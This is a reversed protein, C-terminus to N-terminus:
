GGSKKTKEIQEILERARKAQKSGPALEIVKECHKIAEDYRSGLILSEAMAINDDLQKQFKAEKYAAAIKEDSLLRGAEEAAKKSFRSKKGMEAVKTYLDIACVYERGKEYLGARKMLIEGPDRRPRTRTKEGVASTDAKADPGLGSKVFDPGVEMQPIISTKDIIGRPIRRPPNYKTKVYDRLFVDYEQAKKKTEDYAEHCGVIGDKNADLEKNAKSEIFRACNSFQNDVWGPTRNTTASLIVANDIDVRDLISGSFCSDILIWNSNSKLGSFTTGIDRSSWMQHRALMLSGMASGHAIIWFVFQDNNDLKKKVEGVAGSIGAKTAAKREVSFHHKKLMEFQGANKKESWDPELRGNCYLVTINSDKYGSDKLVAYIRALAIEAGNVDIPDLNKHITANTDNAAVVLVAYCDVPNTFFRAESDGASLFLVLAVLCLVLLARRKAM